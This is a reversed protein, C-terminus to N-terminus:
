GNDATSGPTTGTNAPDSPNPQPPTQLAAPENHGGYRAGPQKPDHTPTPNPPQPM